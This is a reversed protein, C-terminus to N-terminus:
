KAWRGVLWPGRMSAWKGALDVVLEDVQREDKTLGKWDVSGVARGVVRTAARAVVRQVAWPVAWWVVRPEARWVAM